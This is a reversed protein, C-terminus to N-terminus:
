FGIPPLERAPELGAEAVIRKHVHERSNASGQFDPTERVPMISPQGDNRAKVSVQQTPNRTTKQTAERIAKEFDDSTTQLYHKAAVPESNGLWRCVVHLPHAQVLETERTSRCNQFPKVWCDLGTREVIRVFQTRLNDAGQYKTVVPEAEIGPEWGEILIDRLEPFLPIVRSEGGQHHATKPSTVKIRGGEWDIDRWRLALVESPCRLGGFRCLGFIARWEFDPCASLVKDTIERTVFFFRSMNPMISAKLDRFPNESILRKRVASGFILKCVAIHKRVTNEAMGESILHLRFDDAHGPAITQLKRSASFFKVLKNRTSIYKRTTAGKVDARSAIFADVYSGLSASERKQTLGVQALKKTMSVDRSALWRATEDDIADGSFMSSVIHEIRIRTTEAKRKPMKGVYVAKRQGDPHTFIIRQNGRADTSVSAM